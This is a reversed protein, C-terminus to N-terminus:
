RTFRAGRTRARPQGIRPLHPGAEGQGALQDAGNVPEFKVVRRVPLGRFASDFLQEWLARTKKSGIGTDVITWGREDELLWLNIHDLEFPLPMRLWHIGPAVPMASGPEPM